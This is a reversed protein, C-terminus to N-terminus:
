TGVFEGNFKSVVKQVKGEIEWAKDWVKRDEPSVEWWPRDIHVVPPEQVWPFVHSAAAEDADDFVRGDLRFRKKVEAAFAKAQEMEKFEFIMGCPPLNETEEIKTARLKRKKTPVPAYLWDLYAQWDERTAFFDWNGDIDQLHVVELITNDPDTSSTEYRVLVSEPGVQEVVEGRFYGGKGDDLNQKFFKGVLSM